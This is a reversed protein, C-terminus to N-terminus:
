YRWEIFSLRPLSYNYSDDLCCFIVVSDREDFTNTDFPIRVRFTWEVCRERREVNATTAWPSYEKVRFAGKCLSSRRARM